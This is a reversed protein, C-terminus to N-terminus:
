SSLAREPAVLRQLHCSVYKPCNLQVCRDEICPPSNMTTSPPGPHTLPAGCHVEAWAPEGVGWWPHGGPGLDGSSSNLYLELPAM